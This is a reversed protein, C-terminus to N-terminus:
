PMDLAYGEILANVPAAASPSPRIWMLYKDTTSRNALGAGFAGVQSM